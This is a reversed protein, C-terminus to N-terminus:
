LLKRRAAFGLVGLGALMGLCISPEPVAQVVITTSVSYSAANWSSPLAAVPNVDVAAIFGGGVGYDQGAVFTFAPVTYTLFNTGPVASHFQLARMSGAAYIFIADDPHTGYASFANTTISLSQSPDILYKGGSWVGGSLTLIPDNPYANGTLNLPISTGNVTFTYIGSGFNSNNDSLTPSSRDNFNPAGYRWGGPGYVRLETPNYGLVGGNQSGADISIPGSVTPASISSINQGDVDAAFGYPGGYLPGPPTPDVQIVTASTQIKSISKEVVVSTITQALSTGTFTVCATALFACVCTRAARSLRLLTNM